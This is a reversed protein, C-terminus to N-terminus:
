SSQRFELRSPTFPNYNGVSLCSLSSYAMTDKLVTSTKSQAFPSVPSRGDTAKICKHELVQVNEPLKQATRNNCFIKPNGKYKRDEGRGMEGEWIM